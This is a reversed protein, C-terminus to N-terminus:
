PHTITENVRIGRRVSICAEVFTYIWWCVYIYVVGSGVLVRPGVSTQRPRIIPKITLAARTSCSNTFLFFYFGSHRTHLFEVHSGGDQSALYKRTPEEGRRPSLIPGVSM